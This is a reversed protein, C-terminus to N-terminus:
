GRILAVVRFGVIVVLEALVAAVVLGALIPTGDLGALEGLRSVDV